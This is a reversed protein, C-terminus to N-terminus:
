RPDETTLTQMLVILGREAAENASLLTAQGCHHCQFSYEAPAFDSMFRILHLGDSVNVYPVLEHERDANWCKVPDARMEVRRYQTTRSDPRAGTTFESLENRTSDM